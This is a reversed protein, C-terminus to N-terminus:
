LRDLLDLFGDGFVDLPRTSKELRARLVAGEWGIWFFVALTQATDPPYDDSLCSQMRAEWQHMVDNLAHRFQEPLVNLEQGLNGILCGRRFDHRVMGSRADDMFRRVRERASLARDNLCRDLKANFYRAYAGIVNLGFDDKSDFYYYFSGKPVGASKLLGDLGTAVFGKETLCELGKRILMDRVQAM